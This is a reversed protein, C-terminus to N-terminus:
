GQDGAIYRARETDRADLEAANAAAAAQDVLSALQEAATNSVSRSPVNAPMGLQGAASNYDLAAHAHRLEALKVAIWARGLDSEAFVRAFEQGAEETQRAMAAGDYADVVRQAIERSRADQEAQKAERAEQAAMQAAVYAAEAKAAKAELTDLDATM